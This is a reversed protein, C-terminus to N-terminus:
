DHKLKNIKLSFKKNFYNKNLYIFLYYLALFVLSILGAMAESMFSSLIILTVFLVIFPFVYAWFLASFALSESLHVSVMEGDKFDLMEADVTVKNDRTEGVNCAGKISCSECEVGDTIQVEMKGDKTKKLIGKHVIESM